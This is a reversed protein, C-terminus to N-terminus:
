SGTGANKRLMWFRDKKKKRIAAAHRGEIEWDRSILLPSGEAKWEGKRFRIGARAKLGMEM